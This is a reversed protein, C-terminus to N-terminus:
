FLRAVAFIAAALFAPVRVASVASDDSAAPTAGAATPSDGGEGAATPAAESLFVTPDIESPPQCVHDNFYYTTMVTNAEAASLGSIYDKPEIFLSEILPTAGLAKFTNCSALFHFFMNVCPFLFPRHLAGEDMYELCWGAMFMIIFCYMEHSNWQCGFKQTRDDWKEQQQAWEEGIIIHGHLHACCADPECVSDMVGFKGPHPGFMPTGQTCNYPSMDQYPTQWYQDFLRSFVRACKNYGGSIVGHPAAYFPNCHELAVAAYGGIDMVPNTKDPMLKDWNDHGPLQEVFVIKENDFPFTAPYKAAEVGDMIYFKTTDLDAVTVGPPLMAEDQTGQAAVTAVTAFLAAAISVTKM